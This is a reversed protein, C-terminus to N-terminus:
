KRADFWYKLMCDVLVTANFSVEYRADGSATNGDFDYMRKTMGVVATHQDEVQSWLDGAACITSARGARILPYMAFTATNFSGRRSESVGYFVEQFGGLGTQAQLLYNVMDFDPTKGIIDCAFLYNNAVYAQYHLWNAQVLWDSPKSASYAEDSLVGPVYNFLPGTLLSNLGNLATQYAGTTDTGMYIALALIRMAVANSNSNGVANQSGNLPCGGSTNFRTVIGDAYSAISVKMASVIAANNERVAAKYLWEYVPVVLRSSFQLVLKGTLYGDGMTNFGGFSNDCRFKFRTYIDDLTGIGRTLYQYLDWCYSHYYKTNSTGGSYATAADSNFWEMSGMCFQDLRSFIRERYAGPWCPNGLRSIPRNYLATLKDKSGAQDSEFDIFGEGTWCYDKPVPWNLLSYDTLSTIKWGGMIRTATSSPNGAYFYGPRTPGYTTGDRHVDGHSRLLTMTITHGTDTDAIYGSYYREEDVTLKVGPFIMRHNVGCLSSVPIDKVAQHLFRIYVRGKKFIRYRIVHRVSYAPLSTFAANYVTQEVEVFVPGRSIVKQTSALTSAKDTIAGSDIGSAWAQVQTVFTKGQPTTVSGLGGFSTFDYTYGDFSVSLGAAKNTAVPLGRSVGPTAYGKLELTKIQGGTLDLPIFVSGHALSGDAHAGMDARTRPNPHWEPSFQGPIVTGDPTSLFLVSNAHVAGPKFSAKLETPFGTFTYSTDNKVDAVQYELKGVPVKGKDEKSLITVSAVQAESGSVPAVTIEGSPVWRSFYGEVNKLTSYVGTYGLFLCQNAIARVFLEVDNSNTYDYGAATIDATPIVMQFTNLVASGSIGYQTAASVENVSLPAFKGSLDYYAQATNAVPAQTLVKAPVSFQVIVRSSDSAAIRFFTCQAMRFAGFPSSLVGDSFRSGSQPLYITSYLSGNVSIALKGPITASNNSTYDTVVVGVPVPTEFTPVEQSNGRWVAVANLASRRFDPENFEITSVQQSLEAVAASGPYDAVAVASGNDNLYEIHSARSGAGQPVRFYQGAQTKSLGDAISSAEIVYSSGLYSKIQKSFSPKPGYGEIDVDTDEDATMMTKMEVVAKSMDEASDKMSEYLPDMDSM